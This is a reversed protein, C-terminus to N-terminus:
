QLKRRFMMDVFGDWQKDFEERTIHPVLTRAVFWWEEKDHENLRVDNTDPENIEKNNNNSKMGRWGHLLHM